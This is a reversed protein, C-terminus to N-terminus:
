RLTKRIQQSIIIWATYWGLSCSCSCGCGYSCGYSCGCSCRCSHDVVVNDCSSFSSSYILFRVTKMLGSSSVTSASGSGLGQLWCSGVQSTRATMEAGAFKRALDVILSIYGPKIHCQPRRSYIREILCGRWLSGDLAIRSYGPTVINKRKPLSWLSEWTWTLEGSLIKNQIAFNGEM